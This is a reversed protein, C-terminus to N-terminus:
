PSPAVQFLDGAGPHHAIVGVILTWARTGSRAHRARSSRTKTASEPPRPPVSRVEILLGYRVFELRAVGLGASCTYCSSSLPERHPQLLRQLRGTATHLPAPHPFILTIVFIITYPGQRAIYSVNQQFHRASIKKRLWPGRPVAEPGYPLTKQLRRSNSTHFLYIM